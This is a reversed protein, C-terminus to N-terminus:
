LSFFKWVGGETIIEFSEEIARGGPLLITGEYVIRNKSESVKHASLIAVALRLRASADMRQLASGIKASSAGGVYALAGSIDGNQIATTLGTIALEPSSASSTTEGTNGAGGQGSCAHIWVAALSLLLVIFLRRGM